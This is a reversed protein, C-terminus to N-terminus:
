LKELKNLKVQMRHEYKGEKFVVTYLDDEISEVMYTENIGVTRIRVWDNVKIDTKDKM